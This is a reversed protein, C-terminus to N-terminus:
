RSRTPGTATPDIGAGLGLLAWLHRFHLVEYFFGAVAFAVVLGLLYEPRPVLVAVEPRPRRSVIRSFRTGVVWILLVLAVGGAVGREVLTATYDDHAEKVYPAAEAELTAKTRTPGIGILNDHLYLGVAEQVLVERTGSSEDARGLSDHLIPISDAAQQQIQSLSVTPALVVAAGGGLALVAVMATAGRRRRVTGLLGVAVVVLLGIAAGNSGTFVIALLIVIGGAIRGVRRRVVSTALLMALCAVFYNGALNPDGLTFAARTGDRATIGALSNIGALRGFCLLAAWVIGSRVWTSVVIRLLWPDLRVANAISAAWLLSFGDQVVALAVRHDGSFYTALLGALMTLTVPLLYPVRVRAGTRRLWLVTVLCAAGIAADAPATNGPGSPVLIPMAAIAAALAIGVATPRGAPRRGAPRRAAPDPETRAPVPETRTPDPQGVTPRAVLTM